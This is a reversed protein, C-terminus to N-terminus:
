NMAPVTPINMRQPTAKSQSQPQHPPVRTTETFQDFWRKMMKVFIDKAANGTAKLNALPKPGHPQPNNTKMGKSIADHLNSSIKFKSRRIQWNLKGMQKRITLQQLRTFVHKQLFTMVVKADNTSYAEAEVWKSVNEVEVLIYKLDCSPPFPGFFDIGWVNFLEVEIINTRPMENINTVNEVRQCRNCSKVYAYADKFLTEWIFGAQLVKAATRTGGFHGGTPASHCHYLIKPKEDEAVCRRIM